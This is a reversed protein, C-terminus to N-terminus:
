DEGPNQTRDFHAEATALIGAVLAARDPLAKPDAPINATRALVYITVPEGGIDAMLVAHGKPHFLKFGTEEEFVSARRGYALQHVPITLAGAERPVVRAGYVKAAMRPDNIAIDVGDSRTAPQQVADRIQLWFHQRDGGLKNPNDADHEKFHKKLDNAVRRGVDKYLATPNAIQEAIERLRKTATDEITYFANM